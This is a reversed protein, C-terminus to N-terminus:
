PVLLVDWTLEWSCMLASVVKPVGLAVRRDLTQSGQPLFGKLHELGLLECLVIKDKSIKDKGKYIKM